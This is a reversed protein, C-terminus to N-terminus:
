PDVNLEHIMLHHPVGQVEEAAWAFVDRYERLLNVMGKKVLNPLCTGVRITQDPNIPNLPIEEVEDGAELRQLKVTQQPDICDISLIDSRKESRANSTSPSAAQLTALYCERAACVDSSVVAFNVPITRCRPHCGVTVTLIVMREPHVVHGGFGILPTRVPTMSERALKLNDFTRLYMVDVSSGPDIYVKKVIYNNTLVEIVLAEHSSSAAPVPDSPGYTIVESLRSSSEAQDPNAQRYTRKRSNQSDGGTPGGAITNIVGAINPGYGLGQGSSGDRPPRKTERPDEPPRCSSRSPRREDRRQDGRNDRRPENGQQGGGRRIFQKLHGQRILNEIEKKLDNCNETEHGIDRHYLCYLNSKRKDRSSFMKPPAKGLNNQEMVSLVRSRSTNLPTLESDPIPSKGKFIRDFVSRRDRGPSQFGSGTGTESRGLEKGKRLDAKPRAAQVEKKMRNLDEAQIGKEVKSWLEHLTRPYKKHIGTNFVGSVLGHTFAAITVQENPDPIQVSEENFRQVYSRLSEGPNQQMNLLYASTRTTPRSSIFRHLFREVLEGLTSISRPELGWFWKRATGQLFVPFARCIVPDPICYLRFASIFAHIHDEPDGRGDYSPIAPLKFNPPLREENIDDTFPPARMYNVGPTGLPRPEEEPRRGLLGRSFAKTMSAVKSTAKSFARKSASRSLRRRDSEEDSSGEPSGDSKRKSSEAKQKGQRKLYRGLEEFINPNETVFEAMRAVAEENAPQTRPPEQGESIDEPQTANSQEAGITLAKRSKSRTPKM